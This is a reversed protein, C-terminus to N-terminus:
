FLIRKISELQRKVVITVVSPSIPPWEPLAQRVVSRTWRTHTHTRISIYHPGRQNRKKKSAGRVCVCWCSCITIRYGIFIHATFVTRSHPIM